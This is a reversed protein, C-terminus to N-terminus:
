AQIAVPVEPLAVTRLVDVSTIEPLLPITLHCLTAAVERLTWWRM